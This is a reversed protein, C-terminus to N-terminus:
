RLTVEPNLIRRADLYALQAMERSRSNADIPLLPIKNERLYALLERNAPLYNTEGKMSKDLWNAIHAQVAETTYGFYRFAM